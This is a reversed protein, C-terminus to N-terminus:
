VIVRKGILPHTWAKRADDAVCNSSFMSVISKAEGITIENINM